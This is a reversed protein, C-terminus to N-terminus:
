QESCPCLVDVIEMGPTTYLDISGDATIIHPRYLNVSNLKSVEGELGGSLLVKDGINYPVAIQNFADVVPQSYNIDADLNIVKIAKYASHKSRYTRNATLAEYVDALAVIQADIHIQDGRIGWPYGHGNNREHHQLAILVVRHDIAPDQKLLNYGFTVHAKLQKYEEWSLKGPKNIISPPLYIKGIDHLLGGLGLVCLDEDSYGMAIGLVLSFACVNVSHIFLENSSDHIATVHLLNNNTHRLRDIVRYITKELKERQASFAEPSFEIRKLADSFGQELEFRLENDIIECNVIEITNINSSAAFIKVNSIRHKMLLLLCEPTLPTGSILLTNKREDLIDEALIANTPIQSLSSIRKSNM